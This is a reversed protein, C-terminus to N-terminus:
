EKLKLVLSGTVRPAGPASAIVPLTSKRKAKESPQVRVSVTWSRGPALAPLQQTEPKVSVGKPAKVRVSGRGIGATGTNTITLKVTRSRGAKQTLPKPKAISLIPAGPRTAPAPPGAAPSPSSPTSGQSGPPAPEAPPPPSPVAIPFFDWNLTTGPSAVAIAACDYGQGVAKSSTYALTTTTGSVSKSPFGDPESPDNPSSELYATGFPDRYYATLVLLPAVFDGQELSALDCGGTMDGLFAGLLNGSPEGGPEALPAAATTVAFRTSGFTRDYEARGAVINAEPEISPLEPFTAEGSLVEASAGGASVLAIVFVVVLTSPVLLRRRLSM